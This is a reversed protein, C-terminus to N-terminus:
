CTMTQQSRRTSRPQQRRVGYLWSLELRSDDYFRINPMNNSVVTKIAAFALIPGRPLFKHSGPWKELIIKFGLLLKINLKM